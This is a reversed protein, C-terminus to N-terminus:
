IKTVNDYNRKPNEDNIYLKEKDSLNEEFEDFVNKNEIEKKEKEEEIDEDQEESDNDFVLVDNEENYKIKKNKETDEKDEKKIEDENDIEIENNKKIDLTIPTKTPITQEVINEDKSNLYNYAIVLAVALPDFVIVILLVFYNIIINMDVDTLDSLYLLPGLEGALDIDQEEMIKIDYVSISDRYSFITNNIDEIKKNLKEIESDARKM